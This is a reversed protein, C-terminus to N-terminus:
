PNCHDCLRPEALACDTRTRLLQHPCRVCRWVEARYQNTPMRCASCPLGPQRESVWYGPAECAPCVSQLRALLDHGAQAIHKMRSPNAFARQDTEVFVLGNSSQALCADFSARLGAWDSIGKHLRSDDQGEPRLVLHHAPFGVRASVAELAPWDSAQEHSNRAAGQALGVVEIGLRDDILVLIEVNWPFMGAFPDLGFSGESALGIPLGSLDMGIRAKRRAADLQSGPRPMDRTFTGLLDTDFGTVHQVVCGLAPALIPGIVQEKGHQTLFAMTQGAYTTTM